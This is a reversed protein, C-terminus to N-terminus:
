GKITIPAPFHFFEEDGRTGDLWMSLAFTGPGDLVTLPHHWVNEGFTIGEDPGAIFAEIRSLDPGGEPAHPAVMILWRSVSLPVFSQSSFEHRELLKAEFPLAVPEVVRAMSISARAQPRLNALGDDFYVRGAGEPPRLVQGFPAFADPTLPKAAFM